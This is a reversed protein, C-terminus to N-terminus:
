FGADPWPFYGADCPLVTDLECRGDKNCKECPGCLRDNLLCTTDIYPYPPFAGDYVSANWCFGSICQQAGPCDTNKSCTADGGGGCGGVACVAAALVALAMCGTIVRSLKM